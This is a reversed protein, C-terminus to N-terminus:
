YALAAKYLSEVLFTVLCRMGNACFCLFCRPTAPSLWVIFFLGKLKFFRFLLLPIFIFIFVADHNLCCLLLLYFSLLLFLLPRYRLLLAWLSSFFFLFFPFCIFVTALVVPMSTIMHSFIFRVRNAARQLSFLLYKYPSHFNKKQTRIAHVTQKENKKKSYAVVM